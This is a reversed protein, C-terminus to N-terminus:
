ARKRRYHARAKARNGCSQMSCWRRRAGRSDDVFLWGCGDAACVRVRGLRDPDTLLDAASRAIRALLADVGTVSEGSWAVRHDRVALRRRESALELNRNLVAVAPSPVRTGDLVARFSARIAERLEIARRLDTEDAAVAGADVLKAWTALNASGDLQEVPIASDYCDMTNVFDLCLAGGIARFESLASAAITMAVVM